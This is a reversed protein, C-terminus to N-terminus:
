VANRAHGAEVWQTIPAAPHLQGTVEDLAWTFLLLTSCTNMTAQNPEPM